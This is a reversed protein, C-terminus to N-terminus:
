LSKAGFAHFNGFNRGTSIWRGLVLTFLLVSLRFICVHFKESWFCSFKQFKRRNLDKERPCAYSISCYVYLRFICVHFKEPWFCSYKRFKGRDLDMERPDAYIITCVIQLHMRSIERVLFIFIESIGGPSTETLSVM